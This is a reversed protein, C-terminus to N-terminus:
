ALPPLSTSPGLLESPASFWGEDLRHLTLRDRFQWSTLLPNELDLEVAVAANRDFLALLNGEKGAVLLDQIAAERSDNIGECRELAVEIQVSLQDDQIQFASWRELQQM